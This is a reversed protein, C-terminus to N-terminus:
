LLKPLVPRQWGPIKGYLGSKKLLTDKLNAQLQNINGALFRYEDIILSIQYYNFNLLQHPYLCTIGHLRPQM